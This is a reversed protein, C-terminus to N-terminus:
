GLLVTCTMAGTKGRSVRPRLSLKRNGWVRDQTLTGCASKHPLAHAQRAILGEPLEHATPFQPVLFDLM